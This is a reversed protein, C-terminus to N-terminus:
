FGTRTAPGSVTGLFFINLESGALQNQKANLAKVSFNNSGNTEHVYALMPLGPDARRIELAARIDEDRFVVAAPRYCRSGRM